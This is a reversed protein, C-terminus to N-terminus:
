LPVVVLLPEVQYMSADTAYLMRDHRGPLVRGHEGMAGALSEVLALPLGGEEPAASVGAQRLVPLQM